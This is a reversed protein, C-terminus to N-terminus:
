RRSRARWRKMSRRGTSSRKRTSSPYQIRRRQRRRRDPRRPASNDGRLSCRRGRRVGCPVASTIRADRWRRIDQIRVGQCSRYGPHRRGHGRGGSRGDQSAATDHRRRHGGGREGDRGSRARRGPWMLGHGSFEPSEENRPREKVIDPRTPIYRLTRARGVLREGPTFSEVGQMFCLAYGLKSVGSYVTPVGVREYRAMLERSIEQDAM